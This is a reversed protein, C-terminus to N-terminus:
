ERLHEPWGEPVEVDLQRLPHGRPGLAMSKLCSLQGSPSQIHPEWHENTDLQKGGGQNVVAFDQFSQGHDVSTYKGGGGEKHEEELKGLIGFDLIDLYGFIWIDLIVCAM